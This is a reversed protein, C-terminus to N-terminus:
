YIGNGFEYILAWNESTECFSGIDSDNFLMVQTGDEYYVECLLCSQLSNKIFYIIQENWKGKFIQVNIIATDNSHINEIEDIKAVLWEPRNEENEIALSASNLKDLFTDIDPENHHSCAFFTGALILVIATITFIKTKM